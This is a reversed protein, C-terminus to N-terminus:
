PQERPTNEATRDDRRPEDPPLKARAPRFLEVGIEGVFHLGIGAGAFTCAILTIMQAIFRGFDAAARVVADPETSKSWLWLGLGYGV